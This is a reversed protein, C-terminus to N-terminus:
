GYEIRTEATDNITLGRESKKKWGAPRNNKEEKEWFDKGM